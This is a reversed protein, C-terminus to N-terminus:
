FNFVDGVDADRLFEGFEKTSGNEIFKEVQESSYRRGGIKIDYDPMRGLYNVSVFNSDKETILVKVVKLM